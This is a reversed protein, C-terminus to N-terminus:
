AFGGRGRGGSWVADRVQYPFFIFRTLGLIRKSTREGRTAKPYWGGVSLSAFPMTRSLSPFTEYLGRVDNGMITRRLVTDFIRMRTMVTLSEPMARELFRSWGLWHPERGRRLAESAQRESACSTLVRWLGLDPDGSEEEVDFCAKVVDIGGGEPGRKQGFM